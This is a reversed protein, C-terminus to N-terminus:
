ADINKDLEIQEGDKDYLAV